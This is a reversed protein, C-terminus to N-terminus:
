LRPLQKATPIYVSYFSSYETLGEKVIGPFGTLITLSSFRTFFLIFHLILPFHRHSLLAKDIGAELLSSAKISSPRM